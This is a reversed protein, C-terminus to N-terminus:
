ANTTTAAHQGDRRRGAAAAGLGGLAGQLMGLIPVAAPFVAGVMPAVFSMSTSAIATGREIKDVWNQRLEEQMKVLKTHRGEAVKVRDQLSKNLRATQRVAEDIQKEHPIQARLVGLQSSHSQSNRKLDKMESSLRRVQAAAFGGSSVKSALKTVEEQLATTEQIGQRIDELEAKQQKLMEEQVRMLRPTVCSSLIPILAVVLLSKM